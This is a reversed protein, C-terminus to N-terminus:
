PENHGDDKNLGQTKLKEGMGVANVNKGLYTHLGHASDAYTNDLQDRTNQQQHAFRGPQTGQESEADNTTGDEHM